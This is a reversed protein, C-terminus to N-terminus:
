AGKLIAPSFSRHVGARAFMMGSRPASLAASLGAAAGATVMYEEQVVERRKGRLRHSFFQAGSAGIQISPG